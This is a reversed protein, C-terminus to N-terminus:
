AGVMRPGRMRDRIVGAHVYEPTLFSTKEHCARYSQPSLTDCASV